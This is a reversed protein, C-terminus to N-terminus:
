EERTMGIREKLDAGACFVSDLDSALILARTGRPEGEEASIARIHSDLETLLAESLANRNAPSNLALVVISGVHPAPILTSNILNPTSSYRRALLYSSRLATGEPIRFFTPRCRLRPPM